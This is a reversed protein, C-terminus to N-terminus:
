PLPTLPRLASEDPVGFNGPPAVDLRLVEAAGFYHLRNAGAIVTFGNDHGVYYGACVFAEGGPYQTTGDAPKPRKHACPVNLDTETTGAVRRDALLEPDGTRNTVTLVGVELGGQARFNAGTLAYGVFPTLAVFTAVLLAVRVPAPFPRHRVREVALLAGVSGVFVIIGPIAFQAIGVAAAKRPGAIALASAAPVDGDVYLWYLLGGGLVTVVLTSATAAAITVEL